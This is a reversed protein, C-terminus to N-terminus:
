KSSIFNEKMKSREFKQIIKDFSSQREINSLLPSLSRLSTVSEKNVLFPSIKNMIPQSPSLIQARVENLSFLHSNKKM